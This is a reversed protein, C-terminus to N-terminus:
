RGKEEEDCVEILRLFLATTQEIGQQINEELNGPHFMMELVTGRAHRQICLSTEPVGFIYHIRYRKEMESMIKRFPGFLERCMMDYARQHFVELQLAMLLLRFVRPEGMNDYLQTVFKKVGARYDRDPIQFGSYRDKIEYVVSEIVAWFLGEKNGFYQYATTMSGGSARIIENLSTSEYGKELFFRTATELIRHSRRQGKATTAATPVAAIPGDDPLSGSDSDARSRESDSLAADSTGSELPLECRCLVVSRVDKKM